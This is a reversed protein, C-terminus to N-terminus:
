VELLVLMLSLIPIVTLGRFLQEVLDFDIIILFYSCLLVQRIIIEFLSDCYLFTLLDNTSNNYYVTITDDVKNFKLDFELILRIQPNLCVCATFRFM